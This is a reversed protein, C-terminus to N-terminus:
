LEWWREAEKKAFHAAVKEVTEAIARARYDELQQKTLTIIESTEQAAEEKISQRCLDIEADLQSGDCALAIKGNLVYAIYPVSSRFYKKSCSENRLWRYREADEKDRLPQTYLPVVHEPKFTSAEEEDFTVMGPKLNICDLIAWAVPKPQAVSENRKTTERERRLYQLLDVFIYYNRELEDMLKATQAEAKELSKNRETM